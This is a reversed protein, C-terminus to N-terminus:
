AAYSVTGLAEAAPTAFYIREGLFAGGEFKIVFHSRGRLSQNRVITTPAESEFQRCSAGGIFPKSMQCKSRVFLVCAVRTNSKKPARVEIHRVTRAYETNCTTTITDSPSWLLSSSGTLWRSARTDRLTLIKPTPTPDQILSAM